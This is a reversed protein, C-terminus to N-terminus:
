VLMQGDVDVLEDEAVRRPVGMGSDLGKEPQAIWSGVV